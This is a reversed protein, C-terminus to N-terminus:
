GGTLRSFLNNLLGTDPLIMEQKVLHQQLDNLAKNINSRRATKDIPQGNNLSEIVVKYDNPITVLQEIDLSERIDKLSIPHNKDYRNVVLVIQEDLIALENRLLQIMHIADKITILDQQLVVIIKSARQMIAITTRDFIRPLDVVLQNCSKLMLDLLLNVQRDPTQNPFRMSQTTAGMVRLGSSHKLLYANLAVNDLEEAVKLAESIGNEPKLNLYEALTGFQMDLDMLITQQESNTQMLYALNSSLLSAGSGGKANIVATLAGNEQQSIIQNDTHIQQLSKLLEDKEIPESLFDRAGAKMAQRMMNANSADGIVLLPPRQSISHESLEELETQWMESLHLILLDPMTDIDYLPDVHGNTICRSMYAMSEDSEQLLQEIHELFERNRSSLLVRFDSSTGNIVTFKDM